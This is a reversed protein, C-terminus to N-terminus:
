PCSACLPTRAAYYGFSVQGSPTPPITPPVANVLDTEVFFGHSPDIFYYDVAFENTTNNNGVSFATSQDTNELAGPFPASSSPSAFTGSFSQDPLGPLGANTSSDAFGSLNQNTANANIQATGDNESGDEQTFSFGYDGSFTPTMTSQAFAIGTGISPYHLNPSSGTDGLGLVLAEGTGTPNTLYFFLEPGYTPSPAPTFSSPTLCGRGTGVVITGSSAGCSGTPSDVAYTGTFAASIQAGSIGQTKCSSQVCNQQLFSDEYGSCSDSQCGNGDATFLSAWTWTSPVFSSNVPSLDVGTVGFVYTGDFSANNFSGYSDTTQGIATGGTLALPTTAGGAATDTEILKIHTDDVIYGAFVATVPKPHTGDLLGVLTFTIKGLTDPGSSLQSGTLFPGDSLKLKEGIIEDTVGSIATQGSPINLVGGFALSQSKVVDTGSMVFAYSGSPAVVSTEQLDMTGTASAGTAANGLDMQSILAQPNLPGGQQPNLFVFAFTEIGNGGINTDNSNITILGRGDNGLFYNGTLNTDSLSGTSLYNATQEGNTINGNGDLVLVAAFQYPDLNSDVGRAHLVYTGAKLISDFSTITIPAVANSSPSATAYAVIEVVTSYASLTQPATYTNPADSATHQNSLTGCTGAGGQCLLRWDVGANTPDNTVTATVNETFGVALSGAPQPTFAVSVPNQPPPQPNQVNTNGGCGALLSIMAAVLLFLTWRRTAVASRGSNLQMMKVKM